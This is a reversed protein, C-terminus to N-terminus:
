SPLNKCAGPLKGAIPLNPEHHDQIGRLYIKRTIESPPTGFDVLAKKLYLVYKLEDACASLDM